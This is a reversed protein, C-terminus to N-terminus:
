HALLFELSECNVTLPNNEEERTRSMEVKIRGGPLPTVDIVYLVGSKSEFELLLINSRGDKEKVRLKTVRDNETDLYCSIASARASTPFVARRADSERRDAPRADKVSSIAVVSSAIVVALVVPRSRILAGM